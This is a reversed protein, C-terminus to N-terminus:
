GSSVPALLSRCADGLNTFHAIGGVSAPGPEGCRSSKTHRLDSHSRRLPLLRRCHVASPRRHGPARGREELTRAYFEIDARRVGFLALRQDTCFAISQRLDLAYADRTAGRYGALFGALAMREPDGVTPHCVVVSVTPEHEM